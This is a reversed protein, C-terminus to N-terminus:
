RDSGESSGHATLPQPQSGKTRDLRERELVKMRADYEFWMRAMQGVVAFIVFGLTFVPRTDAWSDILWGIGLFLVVTLAMEMGQGLGADVGRHRNSDDRNPGDRLSGIRNPGLILRNVPRLSPRRLRSLATRSSRLRTEPLDSMTEESLTPSPPQSFQRFGGILVVTVVKTFGIM